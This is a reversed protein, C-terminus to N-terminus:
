VSKGEDELWLKKKLPMSLIYFLKIAINQEELKESIINKENKSFYAYCKNNIFIGKEKSIVLNELNLEKSFKETIELFEEM